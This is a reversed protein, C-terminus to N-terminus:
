SRSPDGGSHRIATMVRLDDTMKASALLGVVVYRSRRHEVKSGLNGDLNGFLM